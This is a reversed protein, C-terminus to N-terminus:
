ASSKRLVAHFRYESFASSFTECEFGCQVAICSIERRSYWFGIGDNRGLLLVQTLRRFLSRWSSKRDPRLAEAYYHLRLESDPIDGLLCVGSSALLGHVQELSKMLSERDLYQYLGHSFIFDFQENVLPLAAVDAQVLEIDPFRKRFEALMKSTFDIGVYCTFAEAFFKYLQGSGCGLELARVPAAPCYLLMERAEFRLWAEELHRHEGETKNKWYEKWFSRAGTM